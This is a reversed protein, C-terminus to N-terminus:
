LLELKNAVSNPGIMFSSGASISERWQALVVAKPYHMSKAWPDSPDIPSRAVVGWIAHEYLLPLVNMGTATLRYIIRRRDQEDTKKTIIGHHELHLLREALVSTGIREDSELFESFTKKGLAAIDRVILLSWADGFVEASHNVPCDSKNEARKM